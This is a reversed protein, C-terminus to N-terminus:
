QEIPHSPITPTPALVSSLLAHSEEVYIGELIGVVPSADTSSANNIFSTEQQVLTLFVTIQTQKEYIYIKNCLNFIIISRCVLRTKTTVEKKWFLTLPVCGLIRLCIRKDNCM